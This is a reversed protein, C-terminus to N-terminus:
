ASSRNQRCRAKRRFRNVAAAGTALGDIQGDLEIRRDLEDMYDPLLQAFSQVQAHLAPQQVSQILSIAKDAKESATLDSEIALAQIDKAAGILRRLAARERVAYVYANINAVSCFSDHLAALYPMVNDNFRQEYVAGVTIIDVPENKNALQVMCYFIKQRTADYFDEPLLELCLTKALENKVLIAMLVSEEAEASYPLGNKDLLM